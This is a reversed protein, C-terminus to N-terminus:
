RGTNPSGTTSKAGGAGSAQDGFAGPVLEVLSSRGAALAEKDVPSLKKVRYEVRTAVSRDGVEEHFVLALPGKGRLARAGRRGNRHEALRREVDTTIGTYLGGRAARVMYVSYPKGAM